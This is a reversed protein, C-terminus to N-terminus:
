DGNRKSRRGSILGRAKNSDRIAVILKSIRKHAEPYTRIFEAKDRNLREYEEFIMKRQSRKAGTVQRMGETYWEHPWDRLAQLGNAPDGDEWQHVADLWAEDGKKLDPIFVGPIIVVRQSLRLPPPNLSIKRLDTIIQSTVTRFEEAAVPKVLLHEGLFSKDAEHPVPCLADDHGTEYSQLSDVLHKILTDVQFDILITTPVDSLKGVHEGTAWRGWWRVISLSWHKGLPAFMFRYQAGGRRFCHTTYSKHLGSNKTFETILDQCLQLTMERKPHITGNLAIYPFIYNDPELKQGLCLEYFLLWILLHKYMDVAPVDPQSYINCENSERTGDYGQKHQGGKRGDLFIKFFPHNFPLPGMCGLTLNRMQLGCLEFNWKNVEKMGHGCRMMGHKLLLMRTALDQPAIGSKVADALRSSPCISESWDMMIKMDEVSIAEAHNRTAAAGKEVSRVKVIKVLSAVIGVRAPCGTLKDTEDDYNYEGAYEDGHMMDWYKSFAGHIGEATSRGLGEVICKQTLYLELAVASYKDPPKDFAKELLNTDIGKKRRESVIDALIVRGRALYGDYANRTREANTYKARVAQTNKQLSELAATPNKAKKKGAPKTRMSIKEIIKWIKSPTFIFNELRRPLYGWLWQCIVSKVKRWFMVEWIRSNSRPVVALECLPLEQATTQKYTLVAHCRREEESDRGGYTGDLAERKNRVVTTEALSDQAEFGRLIPGSRILWVNMYTSGGLENQRTVAESAAARTALDADLTFVLKALM